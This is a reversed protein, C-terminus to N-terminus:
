QLSSLSLLLPLSLPSPSSGSQLRVAAPPTHRSRSLSLSIALYLGWASDRYCLLLLSAQIGFLFRKSGSTSITKWWDATNPPTVLTDNQTLAISSDTHCKNTVRYTHCSLSNSSQLSHTQEWLAMSENQKLKTQNLQISNPKKLVRKVNDNHTMHSSNPWSEIVKTFSYSKRANVSNPVASQGLAESGLSFVEQKRWTSKTNWQSLM